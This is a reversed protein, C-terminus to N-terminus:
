EIMSAGAEGTADRSISLGQLMESIPVFPCEEDDSNVADAKNPDLYLKVNKRDEEDEELDELFQNFDRDNSATEIENEKELHELKFRRKHARKNSDGCIKKVLVVDPVLDSNMQELNPDNVNSNRVDFGLVSDGPKLLYGLHSRCHIEEGMGMENARVVWVDALAHKNSGVGQHRAVSAEKKSVAKMKISQDAGVIEINMVIYEALENPNCLARFPYKWFVESRLESIKKTSPNLLHIVQTVRDVICIQGINGLQRALPLPLCVINHKCLPVIEVCYTYKYNYNNNRIDHSVLEKANDSRCPLVTKLFEVMKRADKKDQYYFDLGEHVQKINTTKTEVHMRHTLILQEMYYLTKKHTMRQRIQVCSKWYDKAEVRHCDDCMLNHVTFVVVVERQVVVGGEVEEQFVIKVKIRKSHPETWVFDSDIYRVQKLGNVRKLCLALLEKSQYGACVWTAPPTLYRECNRCFYIDGHTSVSNSVDQCICSACRNSPNKATVVGCKCCQMTAVARDEPQFYEM